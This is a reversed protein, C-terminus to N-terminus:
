TLACRQPFSGLHHGIIQGGPAEGLSLPALRCRGFYWGPCPLFSSQFLETRPKQHRFYSKKLCVVMTSCVELNESDITLKKAGKIGKM